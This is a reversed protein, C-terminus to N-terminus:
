NEDEKELKSSVSPSYEDKKKRFYLYSILFGLAIFGLGWLVLILENNTFIKGVFYGPLFMILPFALSLLISKITKGTPMDLEVKDGKRVDIKQPNLAEFSNDKNTCFFSAHCGECATKDCGVILKDDKNDIVTATQKM